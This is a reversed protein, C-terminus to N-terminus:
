VRGLSVTDGNDQKMSGINNNIGKRNSISGNTTASIGAERLLGLSM